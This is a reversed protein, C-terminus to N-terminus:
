QNTIPTATTLYNTRGDLVLTAIATQGPYLTMGQHFTVLAPQRCYWHKGPVTLHFFSFVAIVACGLVFGGAVSKLNKMNLLLM